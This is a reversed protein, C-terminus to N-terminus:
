VRRRIDINARERHSNHEINKQPAFKNIRTSKTKKIFEYLSININSHINIQKEANKEYIQITMAFKM